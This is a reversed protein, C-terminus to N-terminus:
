KLPCIVFRFSFFVQFLLLSPSLCDISLVQSIKVSDCNFDISNLALQNGFARLQYKWCIRMAGDQKDYIGNLIWINVKVKHTANLAFIIQLLNPDGPRTQIPKPAGRVGGKWHCCIALMRYPDSPWTWSTWCRSTSSISSTWNYTYQLTLPSLFNEINHLFFFEATQLIKIFQKYSKKKCCASHAATSGALGWIPDIKAIKLLWVM